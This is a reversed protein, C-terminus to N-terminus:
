LYLPRMEIPKSNLPSFRRELKTIGDNTPCTISAIVFFSILLTSLIVFSYRIIFRILETNVPNFLTNLLVVVSIIPREILSSTKLSIILFSTSNKSSLIVPSRMELSMVSVYFICPVIAPCIFWTM